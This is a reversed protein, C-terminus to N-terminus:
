SRQGERVRPDLAGYAIDVVANTTIVTAAVVLIGFQLVPYDRQLVADVLLRGAGPWAFVAEVVVAGGVLTGVQLGLITLVPLAGNRLGHKLIVTPEALGKARAFRIYDQGMADIMSSRTLRSVSAMTATGLTIVPLVYHTWGGTGGSPVWQLAFSFVLILAIGLAFNPTAQGVFSLAMLCRDLRSNPRLAAIIGIPGGLAVAFVLSPIMLSLTNPLREAFLETVPRQSFFSRGFDGRAADALYRGFQTLVTHDLGLMQRLEDREAQSSTPPLLWHTPDGTVRTAVFVLTLVIFVTLLARLLRRLVDM